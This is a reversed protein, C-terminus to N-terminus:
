RRRNELTQVPIFEYHPRNEALVARCVTATKTCRITVEGLEPVAVTVDRDPGDAAWATILWEARQRSKRVLVRATTDGTPFEYAPDDKSLAHRSPGPLLDGERLLDEVHSMRAQVYSTATLQRLWHPPQEAPFSAAFGEPPYAYYGANCGLMGAMFYCTLFGTWRDLDAEDPPADPGADQQPTRRPWGASIWNYSHPRGAAIEKAAANLALTLLDLRGRFGDNFHRYYIENCPLDSVSQMADFSYGWDDSGPGKNRLTGGGATYYVYLDRQPVAARVVDAIIKEYRGKRESIYDAWSRTGKAAVIRPDQEWFSRAFGPVGLGYEGGNLVIAIPLGRAVLARLPVARLEGAERWVSDPSEPSFLKGRGSHWETGDPSRSLAELPRGRPDRTWTEPPNDTPLERTCIVSLPFKKPEALAWAALQSEDSTPDDLRAVVSDTVYCAGASVTGFELAYHWSEALEKRADLPLAWGYRTLRPLTHGAKFRPKPLAALYAAPRVLSAEDARTPAADSSLVLCGATTVVIARAFRMTNRRLTQAIKTAPRIRRRVAYASSEIELPSYVRIITAYAKVPLM